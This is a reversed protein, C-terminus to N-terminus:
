KKKKKKKGSKSGGGGGGEAGVVVSVVCGGCKQFGLTQSGEGFRTSDVVRLEYKGPPVEAHMEVSPLVAKGDEGVAMEIATPPTDEYAVVDIASEGGEVDGGQTDGVLVTFFCVQVPKFVGVGTTEATEEMEESGEVKAEEEEKTEETPPAVLWAVLEVCRGTEPITRTKKDLQKTTDVAFVWDTIPEGTNLQAVWRSAANAADGKADQGEGNEEAPEPVSLGSGSPRIASSAAETPQEDSWNGQYTYQANVDKFVAGGQAEPNIADNNWTATLTEGSAFTLTGAGHRKDDLWTGEFVSKNTYYETGAGHKRHNQFEGQYVIQNATTLEGEGHRKNQVFAGVYTVGLVNTTSGQGHYEGQLFDGTYTAGSEFTKTGTGTIEGHQFNGTLTAGPVTFTGHGHKVGRVWDGTYKFTNGAGYQYTGNGHRRLKTDLNGTYM